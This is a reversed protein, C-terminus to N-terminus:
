HILFTKRCNPCEVEHHHKVHTLVQLNEIRNDKKDGNKHHVWEWRDLKRGLHKEMIVRHEMIWKKSRPLHIQIYGQAHIHKGGKWSHHKEGVKLRMPVHSCKLSCFKTKLNRTHSHRIKIIKGCTQCKGFKSNDSCKRSCYKAGTKKFHSPFVKFKKDCRLCTREVKM